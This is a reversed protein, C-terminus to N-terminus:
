VVEDFNPKKPNNLIRPKVNFIDMLSNQTKHKMLMRQGTHKNFIMRCVRRNAQQTLDLSISKM